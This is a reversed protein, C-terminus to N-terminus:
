MLVNLENDYSIYAGMSKWKWNSRPWCASVRVEWAGKVTSTERGTVVDM